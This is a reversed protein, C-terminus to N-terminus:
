PVEDRSLLWATLAFAVAAVAIVAILSTSLAASFKPDPRDGLHAFASRAYVQISARAAGRAVRSVAGEWILIYALGWALARRVLLGLGLFVAVYGLTALATGALAGGTLASGTDSVAAAITTPLVAVPLAICLTAAFAAAVLKWRAVPKLWLYVLTGDEALDGLAASAFVLATVPVLLSLCYGDVILKSATNAPDDGPNYRLAIGLIVAVVGLAGLSLVRARTVLNLLLLRFAAVTPSGARDQAPSQPPTQPAAPAAESM